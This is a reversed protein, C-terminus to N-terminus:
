LRRLARRALEVAKSRKEEETGAGGVSVRVYAHKQRVLAYLVGSARNGIWFADDGIGKVKLPPAKEKEIGRVEPGKARDKGVADREKEEEREEEGAEARFMREWREAPDQGGPVPARRTVELSVSSTFPDLRYFCDEISYGGAIRSTPKTEVPSAKQVAAIDAATL